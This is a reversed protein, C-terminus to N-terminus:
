IYIDAATMTLPQGAKRSDTADFNEEDVHVFKVVGDPLSIRSYTREHRGNAYHLSKNMGLPLTGLCLPVSGSLFQLMRIM